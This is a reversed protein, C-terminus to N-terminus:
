GKLAKLFTYTAIAGYVLSIIIVHRLKQAFLFSLLPVVQLAHMGIFHAIRLDGNKKSWNLFPIGEGGDPAGVTHSLRAGMALGEMAFIAFLWIGLVISWRLHDPIQITPANLFKFSFIFTIIAILTAALGMLGFMIRSESTTMNFHSMEGQSAKWLIYINEFILLASVSVSYLKMTQDEVLFTSYYNMTWLFIATSLFFKLPKHWANTNQVLTDSNLSPFVLLVAGITHVLAIWFLIENKERLYLLLSM